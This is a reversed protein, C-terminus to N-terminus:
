AGHGMELVRADRQSIIIHFTGGVVPNDPRSKPMSGDISWRGDTLKVVYPKQDLITKEGYIPFLVAEAIKIATQEDPVLGGPREFLAPVNQGPLLTSTFVLVAALAFKM